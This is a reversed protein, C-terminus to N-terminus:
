GIVCGFVIPNEDFDRFEIPFVVLSRSVICVYRGCERKWESGYVRFGLGGEDREKGAIWFVKRGTQMGGGAHGSAM